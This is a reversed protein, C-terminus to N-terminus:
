APIEVVIWGKSRITYLVTPIGKCYCDKTILYHKRAIEIPIRVVGGDDLLWTEKANPDLPRVVFLDKSCGPSPRTNEVRKFGEVPGQTGKPVLIICRRKSGAPEYVKLCSGEELNLSDLVEKPIYVGCGNNNGRCYKIARKNPPLGPAIVTRYVMMDVLEGVQQKAYFM